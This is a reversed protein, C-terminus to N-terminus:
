KKYIRLSRFQTTREYKAALDPYDRKLAKADISTRKQAAYYIRAGPTEVCQRERMAARIRDQVSELVESAEDYVARIEAYEHILPALSADYEVEGSYEPWYDEGHCRTQYPCRTCRKDKADLADPAPGNEVKAWFAHAERVLGDIMADDREVDFWVSEWRDLHMIMWSGWRWGTMYLYWQLQAIYAEPLGDRRIRKFSFEGPCKIELVGPGRDDFAVIHRDIHACFYPVDRHQLYSARRVKRGTLREYEEAAADEGFRGRRMAATDEREDQGERKEYWLRRACGYPALNLIDGLDSGGIYSRRDM